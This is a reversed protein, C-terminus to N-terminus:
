THLIENVHVTTGEDVFFLLEYRSSAFVTPDLSCTESCVRRFSGAITEGEKSSTTEGLDRYKTVVLSADSGSNEVFETTADHASVEGKTNTYVLRRAGTGTDLYVNVRGPGNVAGSISFSSLAFPANNSLQLVFSQSKDVVIDVPNREINKALHGTITGRSFYLATMFIIVIVIAHWLAHAQGKKSCVMM